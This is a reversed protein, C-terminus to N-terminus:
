GKRIAVSVTYGVTKDTDKDNGMLYVRITYNGTEPLRVDGRREPEMSGNFIAVGDSGPPLINFYVTGSGNTGDVTLSVSMVQDANAGLVYDVYEHGSVSGSLIASSKGKDFHVESVTQAGANYACLFTLSIAALLSGTGFCGSKVM